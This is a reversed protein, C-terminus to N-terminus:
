DVSFDSCKRRGFAMQDDPQSSGPLQPSVPSASVAPCNGAVVQYTTRRKHRLHRMLVRFM